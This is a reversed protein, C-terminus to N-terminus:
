KLTVREFREKLIADVARSGGTIYAAAMDAIDSDTIWLMLKARGERLYVEKCRAQAKDPDSIARCVVYGVQTSTPNLRGLLQDFAANAPDGAYNKCEFFIIPCILGYLKRLNFFFGVEKDNEARIDVRKTAGFITEEPKMTGLQSQFLLQFIAMVAMQYRTAATNGTAIKPLAAVLRELEDRDTTGGSEAAELDGVIYQSLLKATIGPPLRVGSYTIRREVSTRSPLREGQVLESLEFNEVLNFRRLTRGLM